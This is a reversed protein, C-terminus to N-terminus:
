VGRKNNHFIALAQMADSQAWFPNGRNAIALGECLVARWKAAIYDSDSVTEGIYDSDNIYM